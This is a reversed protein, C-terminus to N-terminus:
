PLAYRTQIADFSPEVPTPPKPPALEGLVVPEDRSPAFCFKLDGVPAPLAPAAAPLRRAQLLEQVAREHSNM